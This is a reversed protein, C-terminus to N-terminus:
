LTYYEKSGSDVNLIFDISSLDNFFGLEDFQQPYNNPLINKMYNVEIKNDSFSKENIYNKGGPGSLYNKAGLLKCINLILESGKGNVNLESQMLFKTNLDFYENCITKILNINLSCLSKDEKNIIDKIKNNFFNYNTSKSYNNQISKIHKKKWSDEIIRVSNLKDGLKVSVPVTLWLKGQSNKIQNRNHLGNKQFQVNDLFVFIDSNSIKSFYPLWPLYQPQHISVIM